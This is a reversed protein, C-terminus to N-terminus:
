HREANEAENVEMNGAFAGCSLSLDTREAQNEPGNSAWNALMYQIYTLMYQVYVLKIRRDGLWSTYSKFCAHPHSFPPKDMLSMNLIYSIM